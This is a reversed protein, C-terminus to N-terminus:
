RSDISKSTNRILTLLKDGNKNEEIKYNNITIKHKHSQWAGDFKMWRERAIRFWRAKAKKQVALWVQM